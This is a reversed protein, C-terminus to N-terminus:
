QCVHVRPEVYKPGLKARMHDRLLDYYEPRQRDVFKGVVIEGTKSLDLDNTPAGHAIRSKEKYFLMAELGDGMGNRRQYLTPCPSMIELFSFGKKALMETM